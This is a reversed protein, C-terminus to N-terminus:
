LSDEFEEATAFMKEVEEFDKMFTDPDPLLKGSYAGGTAVSDDVHELQSMSRLESALNDLALQDNEGDEDEDDDVVDNPVNQIVSSPRMYVPMMGDDSDSDSDSEKIVKDDLKIQSLLPNWTTTKTLWLSKSDEKNAAAAAAKDQDEGEKDKGVLFFKDLGSYPRIPIKWIEQEPKEEEEESISNQVKSEIDGKVEEFVEEVIYDAFEEASRTVDVDANRKKSEIQNDSAFLRLLEDDVDEDDEEKNDVDFKRVQFDESCTKQPSSLLDQNARMKKLLLREMYSIGGASCQAAAELASAVSTTKLDGAQIECSAVSVDVCFFQSQVLSFNTYFVRVMTLLILLLNVKKERKDGRKSHRLLRNLVLRSMMREKFFFVVVVVM